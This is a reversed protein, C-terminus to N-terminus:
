AISEKTDCSKAKKTLVLTSLFQKAVNRWTYKKSSRTCNERKIESAKDIATKLDNDL